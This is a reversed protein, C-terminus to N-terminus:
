DGGELDFQLAGTDARRDNPELNSVGAGLLRVPRRGADTKELLDV